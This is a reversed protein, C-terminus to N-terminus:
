GKGVETGQEREAEEGEGGIEKLWNESFEQCKKYVTNVVNFDDLTYGDESSRWWKPAEVISYKLYAITYNLVLVEPDLRDDLGGNLQARFLDARAKNKLNPIVFKFDGTWRKRTTQGEVDISFEFEKNPLENPLDKSNSM